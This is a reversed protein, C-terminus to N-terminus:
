RRLTVRRFAGAIRGAAARMRFRLSSEPYAARRFVMGDNVIWPWKPGFPMADRTMHVLEFGHHALLNIMELPRIGFQWFDYSDRELRGRSDREHHRAFWGDLETSQNEDEWVVVNRRYWGLGRDVFRITRPTKLWNQNYIVLTDTQQSWALLFDNWDPNVQHLLIDFMIVAGVYGVADHAERSGLLTEVLRVKPHRAATERTQPTINGDLVFGRKLTSGCLEAARFAYAGNVGWCGGLDAFSRFETM